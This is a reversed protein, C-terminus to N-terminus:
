TILNPWTLNVLTKDVGDYKGGFKKDKMDIIMDADKPHIGELMQLFLSERRLPHLGDSDPIGKVMYRFEPTRRKLDSPANGEASLSSQYKPAGLPLSWVIKDDFAGRLVDKLGRCENEKLIAIKEAQTKAAGTKELIESILLNM